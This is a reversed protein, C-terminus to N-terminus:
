IISIIVIGDVYNRIVIASIDYNDGLDVQWWRPYPYAGWMSNNTGDSDNAMSSGRTSSESSQCTTAKNLAINALPSFTASITHDGTVNTFTYSTVAGVSVGDIMVDAISYFSNATITYTQSGGLAVAVEGSPSISGGTGASGTITNVKPVTTNLTGYVRFDSIHVGINASNYTM